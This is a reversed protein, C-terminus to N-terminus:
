IGTYCIDFIRSLYISFGSGNSIIETAKTLIFFDVMTDFVNGQINTENNRLDGLHIKSNNWYYLDNINEKLKNAIQASDSILIYKTNNNENLLHQIKNYYLEYIEHNYENHHIYRDGFRLHIVKYKNTTSIKFINTFIDEIKNKIEISPILINQIYKKCEISIDEKYFSNTLVTFNNSTEFLSILSNYIDDYNMPPILEMVESNTSLIYPSKELYSFLPHNNDFFLDYGYKKSLEYLAITGRLFDGIGPPQPNTKTNM